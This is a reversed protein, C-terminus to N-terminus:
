RGRHSPNYLFQCRLKLKDAKLKEPLKPFPASESIGSLAADDFEPDGSRESLHLESISGDRVITFEIRVNGQKLKPKKWPSYHEPGRASAPIHRYWNRRINGMVTQLYPSVDVGGTPSLVDVGYHDVKETEKELPTSKEPERASEKASERLASQISDGPSRRQFQAFCPMELLFLLAFLVVKGAGGRSSMM